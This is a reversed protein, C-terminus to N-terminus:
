LISLVQLMLKLLIIQKLLFDKFLRFVLILSKYINLCFQFKLMSGYSQKEYTKLGDNILNNLLSGLLQVYDLVQFVLHYISTHNYDM